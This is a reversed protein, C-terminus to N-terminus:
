FSRPMCLCLLLFSAVKVKLKRFGVHIKEFYDGCVITTSGTSGRICGTETGHEM